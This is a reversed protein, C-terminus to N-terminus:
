MADWNNLIFLFPVFLLLLSGSGVSIDSTIEEIVLMVAGGGCVACHLEHARALVASALFSLFACLRM